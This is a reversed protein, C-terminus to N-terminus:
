RETERRLWELYAASGAVIPTAIIQPLEYSHLERIAAEIETYHQARTKILCLWEEATDMTGRWWYSSTVPGSVHACAALRREVVTRSIHEAEERNDTATSVQIFEPM